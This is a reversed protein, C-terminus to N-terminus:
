AALATRERLVEAYHGLMRDGVAAWTRGGAADRGARGCAARLAHDTALGAVAGRIAETDHAPM